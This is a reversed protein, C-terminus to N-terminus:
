INKLINKKTNWKIFLEKAKDFIETSSSLQLADLDIMVEEQYEEEVLHLKKVVNRRVHAWCM